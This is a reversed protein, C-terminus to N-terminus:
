WEKCQDIKSQMQQVATFPVLAMDHIVPEDTDIWREDSNIFVCRGSKIAEESDYLYIDFDLRPEPTSGRLACSCM